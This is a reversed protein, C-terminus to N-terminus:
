KKVLIAKAAANLTKTYHAFEEVPRYGFSVYEMLQEIIDIYEKETM